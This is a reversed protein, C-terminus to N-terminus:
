RSRAMGLRREAVQSRQVESTGGYITTAAAHRHAAEIMGLGHRDKLLSYPATLDLLDTSDRLFAETSFLKSMPGYALDVGGSVRVFLSRRFIIDSVVLKTAVRALVRRVSVDEIPTKGQSETTAWEIAHELAHRHPSIFGAGGQELRLAATMIELGGNVKGLRYRDPIRVDTYFTV